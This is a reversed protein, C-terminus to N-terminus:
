EIKISMTQIYNTTTWSYTTARAYRYSKSALIANKETTTMTHTTSYSVPSTKNYIITNNPFDIVCTLFWAWSWYSSTWSIINWVTSNYVQVNNNSGSGASNLIRTASSSWTWADISTGASLWCAIIWANSATSGWYSWMTFTIKNAETIEFPIPFTVWATTDWSALNWLWNSNLNYGVSNKSWITFWAAAIQAATKGRFDYSYEYPLPSDTWIYVNM